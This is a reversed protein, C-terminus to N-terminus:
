SDMDQDQITKEIAMCQQLLQVIVPRGCTNSVFANRVLDRADPRSSAPQSCLRLFDRFAPSYLQPQKLPPWRNAPVSTDAFPPQAEAMEWVTAGVSWVDVKLANYSGNPAQWYLVGVADTRTPSSPSVRVANSFDTLKLNGESNLLLNDSRLDRHAINNARLYVLADLIDSTFRAITREQLVLGQEVLGVVDALSREMLEMRIWLSDEELDVYLADLSLVNPHDLGKLLEVEQKLDDLKSSGSPLIAVSKIAVLSTLGRARSVIDQTKVPPALKLKQLDADESIRAAFVSGSEGEAIEQLDLYYERPDIPEDIFGELPKLVESLWGRYRQCPTIPTIASQLSSYPGPQVSTNSVVITPRAGNGSSPGLTPSRTVGVDGTYGLPSSRSEQNGEVPLEDEDDPVYSPSVDDKTGGFTASVSEMFRHDEHVKVPNAAPASDLYYVVEDDDEPEEKIATETTPSNSTSTTSTKYSRFSVSGSGSAYTSASDEESGFLSSQPSAPHRLSAVGPSEPRMFESVRPSSLHANSAPSPIRRDVLSLAGPVPSRSRLSSAPSPPPLTKTEAWKPSPSRETEVPPVDSEPASAPTFRTITVNSATSMSSQASNRNSATQLSSSSLKRPIGPSLLGDDQEMDEQEIEGEDVKSALSIVESEQIRYASIRHEGYADIKRAKPSLPLTPSQSLAPSNYRDRAEADEDDSICEEDDDYEEGRIRRIPSADRSRRGKGSKVKPQGVIDMLENFLGTNPSPTLSMATAMVSSPEADASSVTSTPVTPSFGPSLPSVPFQKSGSSSPPSTSPSSASITFSFQSGSPSTAGELIVPPVTGKTNQSSLASSTLTRTSLNSTSPPQSLSPADKNELSNPDKLKQLVSESWSDLGLGSGSDLDFGLSLGLGSSGLDLPLNLKDAFSDKEQHDASSGSGSHSSSGSAVSDSPGHLGTNPFTRKSRRRSQRKAREAADIDNTPESTAPSVGSSGTRRRRITGGKRRSEQRGLRSAEKEAPYDDPSSGQRQGGQIDPLSGYAPPPSMMASGTNTVFYTRQRQSSVSDAPSSLETASAYPRSAKTGLPSSKQIQGQSGSRDRRHTRDLGTDLSGQEVVVNPRGVNSSPDVSISLATSSISNNRSRQPQPRHPLSGNAGLSRGPLPAPLPAVLPSAHPSSQSRISADSYQRPLSTSRPPPARSLTYPATANSDGSSVSNSRFQSPVTSVGSRISSPSHPRSYLVSGGPTLTGAQKRAYIAAIEEETFGAEALSVTWSPPMGNYAEDVHINHTFNWPMSISEDETAIDPGLDDGTTSSMVSPSNPSRRLKFFSSKKKKLPARDITQTDSTYDVSSVLSMSSSSPHLLGTNQAYQAQLNSPTGGPTLSAPALSASAPTAPTGPNSEPSLSALSRNNRFYYDKPPLPPPKLDKNSGFKGFVKLTATSFRSSKTSAGSSSVSSM